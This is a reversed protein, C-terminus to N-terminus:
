VGSSFPGSRNSDGRGHNPPHIREDHAHHECCLSNYGETRIVCGCLWETRMPKGEPDFDIGVVRNRAGRASDEVENLMEIM